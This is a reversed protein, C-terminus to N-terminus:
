TGQEKDQKAFDASLEEFIENTKKVLVEPEHFNMM